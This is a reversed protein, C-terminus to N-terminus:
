SSCFSGRLLLFATGTLILDPLSFPLIVRYARSLTSYFGSELGELFARWVERGRSLSLAM